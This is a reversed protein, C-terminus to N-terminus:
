SHSMSCTTGIRQIETEEDMCYPSHCEEKLSPFENPPGMYSPSCVEQCLPVGRLKIQLGPLSTKQM